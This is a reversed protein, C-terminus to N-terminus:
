EVGRVDSIVYKTEAGTYPLSDVYEITVPVEGAVRRRPAVLQRPPKM